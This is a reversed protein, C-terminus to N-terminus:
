ECKLTILNLEPTNLLRFNLFSVSASAGLGSSIYQQMDLIRNLGKVENQKPFYGNMVGSTPSPIYLAGIFPLRIQGGHYHGAISLSYDLYGLSNWDTKTMKAQIPFHNVRIKIQQNQNLQNYWEQLSHGYSQVNQFDNANDFMDESVSLYNMQIDAQCLEPVFWISEGAKTIKIPLLLIKVGASEIMEGIDTLKGTCSGNITEAAFPGTNGDVWLVTNRNELGYILDLVAQSSSIDSDEYKNMDGTFLICDYDVSNIASLLKDQNEGFYKGHLDSIQLIRYGDFSNPLNSVTIEQEVVIFRKNDYITYITSIILLLLFSVLIIKKTKLKKKM